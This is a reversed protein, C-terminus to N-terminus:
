NATVNVRITSSGPGANSRGRIVLTFSDQGKFGPKSQYLFGFAGNMTARGNRPQASITLGEFVTTASTNFTWGCPEGSGTFIRSTVTDSQFMFRARATTCAASALDVAGFFAVAAAIIRLLSM